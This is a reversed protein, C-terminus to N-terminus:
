RFRLKKFKAVFGSIVAQELAIASIEIFKRLSYVLNSGFGCSKSHKQLELMEDVTLNWM